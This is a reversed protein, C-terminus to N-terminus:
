FTVVQATLGRAALAARVSEAAARNAFPWGIARWDDGVPLVELRLGGAQGSRQAADRLALLMQESEFRTRLLRTSVAWTPAAAAPASTTPATAPAPNTAAGARPPGATAPSAAAVPGTAASTAAAARTGGALRLREARAADSAERAALRTEEDLAPLLRVPRERTPRAVPPREPASAEPEPAYAAPAPRTMAAAMIAAVAPDTAAAAAADTLAVGGASAAQAASPATVAPAAVAMETAAIAPASAAAALASAPVSETRAPASAGQPGAAAVPMATARNAQQLAAPGPWGTPAALLVLAGVMLMLSAAAVTLRTQDLLRPGLVHPPLLPSVLVQVRRAGLDIAASYLWLWVVGAARTDHGSAQLERAPADAPGPRRESAHRLM